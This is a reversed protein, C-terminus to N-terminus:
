ADAWQLNRRDNPHAAGDFIYRSNLIAGNQLVQQWYRAILRINSQQVGTFFWISLVPRASRGM